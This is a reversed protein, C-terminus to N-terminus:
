ESSYIFSRTIVNELMFICYVIECDLEIKNCIEDYGSPLISKNGFM